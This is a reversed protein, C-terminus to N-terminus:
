RDKQSRSSNPIATRDTDFRDAWVHSGTETDILQVNVQVQEGLRRVSGELAYRVGLEQGIQKVDVSKGKYTFATTRAIVFSERIRSLDTTLDDTIADSFYEQEPDNSLNTFPLVVVSLRHAPRTKISSVRQPSLREQIFAPVNPSQWALWAAIPVAVITLLSAGLVSPRSIIRRVWAPQAKVAVPPTVAVAKASM